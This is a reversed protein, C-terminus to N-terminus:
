PSVKESDRVRVSEGDALERHGAVILRDDPNIGKVIQVRDGDLIGLEVRREEATGNNEVFVVAYDGRPIVSFLPITIADPIDQRLIKVVTIMSPLIETNPNPVTIEVNYTRTFQDGVISLYSVTGKYSKAELFEFSVFVEEGKHVFPIDKEPVKVLIKVPDIVVIDAISDGKRVYEGVEFYLTNLIGPTPARVTAKEIQIKAIELRAADASVRARCQDLQEDSVAGQAHLDEFRSCNKSSLNYAAQAEELQASFSRQDIRLITAGAEKINDGEEPGIWDIRGEVEAPVKTSISPEVTAPLEIWERLLTPKVEVVKVDVTRETAPLEGSRTSGPLLLLAMVLAGIVSLALVGTIVRRKAM